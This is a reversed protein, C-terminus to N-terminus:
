TSRKVDPAEGRAAVQFCGLYKSPAYNEVPETMAQMLREIFEENTQLKSSM